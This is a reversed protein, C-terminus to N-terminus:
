TRVCVLHFTPNWWTQFKGLCTCCFLFLYLSFSLRSYSYTIICWLIYWSYPFFFITSISFIVPDMSSVAGHYKLIIRNTTIFYIASLICNTILSNSAQPWSSLPLESITIFIWTLLWQHLCILHPSPFYQSVSQLLGSLVLNICWGSPQHFVLIKSNIM